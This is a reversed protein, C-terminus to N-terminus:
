AIYISFIIADVYLVLELKLSVREIMLLFRRRDSTAIIGSGM